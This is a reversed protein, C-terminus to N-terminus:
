TRPLNQMIKYEIGPCVCEGIVDRILEDNNLAFSPIKYDDPLGTLLLLEKITYARANNYTGDPQLTGPHCSVMGGMGASKMLISGCSEDWKARRWSSRYFEADFGNENVPKWPDPNLFASCGTPTHKMVETYRKDWYPAYHYPIDNIEGAELPPLHSIADRVTKKVTEKEPLKWPAIKSALIFARRRHQPIGYDSANLVKITVYKYGLENLKAEIIDVVKSKGGVKANLFAPVNEIMVHQNVSNVKELYWLGREYLFARPNSIDRKGATSFDQCPPSMLTLTAKTEIHKAVIKNFVEDDMIDGPIMTTNKYKENYWLARDGLLENAVASELGLSPLFTEGIGACSFLSSYYVKNMM